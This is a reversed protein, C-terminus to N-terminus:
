EEIEEPPRDPRASSRWKDHEVSGHRQLEKIGGPERYSKPRGKVVKVLEDLKLGKSSLANLIGMQFTSPEFPPLTRSAEAGAALALSLPLTIPRDRGRLHISIAEAVEGPYNDAVWRAVNAFLERSGHSSGNCSRRPSRPDQPRPPSACRPSRGM